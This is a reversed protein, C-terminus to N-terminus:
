GQADTIGAARRARYEALKQVVGSVILVAAVPITIVLLLISWELVASLWNRGYSDTMMAGVLASLIPGVAILLGWLIRKM